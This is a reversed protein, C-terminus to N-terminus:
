RYSRNCPAGRAPIRPRRQAEEPALPHHRQSRQHQRPHPPSAHHWRILPRPRPYGLSDRRCPQLMGAVTFCYVTRPILRQAFANEKCRRCLRYLESSHICMGFSDRAQTPPRLKSPANKTTSFCFNLCGYMWKLRAYPYWPILAGVSASKLLWALAQAFVVVHM